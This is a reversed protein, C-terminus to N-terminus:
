LYIWLIHVYITRTMYSPICLVIIYVIYTYNRFYSQLDYCEYSDIQKILVRPIECETSSTLTNQLYIYYFRTALETLKTYTQTYYIHRYTSVEGFNLSSIVCYVQALCFSFLSLFFKKLFFWLTISYHVVLYLVLNNKTMLLENNSFRNFYKFINKEGLKCVFYLL